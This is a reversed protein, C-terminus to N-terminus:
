WIPRLIMLLDDGLVQPPAIPVFRPAKALRSVGEGGIWSPGASSAEGKGGSRGGLVLPAVVLRLEDVLKAALFSAHLEGGGEVLMSTLGRKGLAQGLAKLSVRGRRDAPLALPVAGRAELAALRKAPAERLHAVITGPTAFVRADPDVRARSDLVVRVPDAVAGREGAPLRVTLQPDDAEVTARGVAIADLEARWRHGLQRAAAGSIWQSEGSATAIKGDLTMAAKLVVYPRGAEGWTYFARNLHRGEAELVGSTVAIGAARVLEAGGGHGAVPDLGGIVVRAVGSAVVAPACPPTRGFHACPELNVYMTAGRAKGGLKALADVEAHATGPGRHFGEALLQGRRDVIVCGVRPNPSIRGPAQRALELARAMWRADRDDRTPQEARGSPARGRGGKSPRSGAPEKM